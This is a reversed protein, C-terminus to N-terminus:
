WLTASLDVAARQSSLEVILDMVDCCSDLATVLNVEHKWKHEM